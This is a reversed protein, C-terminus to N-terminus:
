AGNLENLLVAARQADRAAVMRLATRRATTADAARVAEKVELLHSPHMSFRTLGLGLLLRTFRPDGAMEGCLSVPVGARNGARLIGALLKLVAPHLPDYLYDVEDNDRDVALTYQILDNTGISLFDASRALQAATLAAAPVEVMAGVAVPDAYRVGRAALEARAQDLSARFAVLEAPNTVMPLMVEVPGRAAARLIARLQPLLWGPERLGFRIGRLGLAPNETVARGPVAKDAGLDLTRITVTGGRMGDVAKAYLAYQEAEDPPDRDLFLMETRYMGVGDAGGVRAARLDAPQEINALMTVTVGDRTRAPLHRLTRLAVRRREGIRMRKRYHETAARDPTVLVLGNDGDLIAIDGARVLARADRVGVIAPMRLSRAIIAAHSLPGGSETIFGAAGRQHLRLVDAPGLAAAVHITGDVPAESDEEGALLAIVRDVAHVVEDSRTRLYADDLSDFVALLADRQMRLAWEANCRFERIRDAVADSLAPDRLMLLHSDIFSRVDAPTRRPVQGRVKRLQRQAHALARRYRAVEANVAAPALLREVVVQLPRGHRVPGIAISGPVGIGQLMLPM